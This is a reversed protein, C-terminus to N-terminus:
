YIPPKTLRLLEASAFREARLFSHPQPLLPFSKISPDQTAILSMCLQCVQHRGQAKGEGDPASDDSDSNAKAMMPCDEPMSSHSAGIDSSHSASEHFAMGVIMRDVSLSRLPLLAILLILILRGM